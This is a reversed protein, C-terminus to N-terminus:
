TKAGCHQTCPPPQGASSWKCTAQLDPQQVNYTCVEDESMTPEVLIVGQRQFNFLVSNADAMKGGGKQM